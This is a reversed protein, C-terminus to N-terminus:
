PAGGSLFGAIAEALREPKEHPVHHGAGAIPIRAARPFLAIRASRASTLFDSETGHVLLIPCAIRRIFAAIQGESLVTQARQRLLPDHKWAYGRPTERAGHRAMHACVQDPISPFRKKIAAAAAELSPYFFRGEPRRRPELREAIARPVEEDPRAYPGVSEILVLREIKEPFAGAYLLSMSGGLSHGVLTVRRKGLHSVLAALDGLFGEHHYGRGTPDWDSDGHGRLDLAVAHEPPFGRALLAELLFDWSRCQDRIGHVFITTRGAPDGLEAYHLRLGDNEFYRDALALM